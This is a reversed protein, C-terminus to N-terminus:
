KREGLARDLMYLGQKHDGVMNLKDVIDMASAEEEVQEDIFWHLFSHTPLDDETNSLKVLKHICDSIFQEHKYAAEFAALPSDWEAQPTKLGELTVRGGRENVFNYIKMAHAMEEKAQTQMWTSFGGLNISDFYTAMSLYLYFSDMEERIQTNLANQMKDTLM